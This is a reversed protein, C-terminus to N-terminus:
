GWVGFGISACRLSPEWLSIMESCGTHTQSRNQILAKSKSKKASLLHRHLTRALHAHLGLGLHRHTTTPDNTIPSNFRKEDSEEGATEDETEEDDVKSDSGSM